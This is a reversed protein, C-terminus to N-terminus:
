SGEDMEDSSGGKVMLDYDLRAGLAAIALVQERTLGIYPLEDVQYVFSIQVSHHESLERIQPSSNKIEDLFETIFKELDQGVFNGPKLDLKKRFRWEHDDFEPRRSVGRGPILAGRVRVHSPELGVIQTIRDATLEKSTIWLSIGFYNPFSYEGSSSM